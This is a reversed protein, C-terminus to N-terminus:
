EVVEVPLKNWPRKSGISITHLSRQMWHPLHESQKQEKQVHLHRKPWCTVSISISNKVLTNETRVLMDGQICDWPITTLSFLALNSNWQAHNDWDHHDRSQDKPVAQLRRSNTESLTLLKYKAPKKSPQLRTGAGMKAVRFCQMNKKARSLSHLFDPFSPMNSNSLYVRKM